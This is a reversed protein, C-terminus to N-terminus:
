YIFPILRKTKKLYTEYQEGFRSKLLKEELDMRIKFLIFFSLFFVISLILSRFSLAFGFFTLLMGFYIPHRIYKYLGVTIIDHNKEITIKSTGFRGIIIRSSILILGGIVMVLFGIIFVLINNWLPFYHLIFLRNEFLPLLLVIPLLLFLIVSIKPYKFQDKESSIPRIVIDSCLILNFVIIIVLSSIDFYIDIQFIIFGINLFFILFLVAIIKKIKNSMMM